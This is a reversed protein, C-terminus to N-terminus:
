NFKNLVSGDSLHEPYTYSGDDPYSLIWRGEFGSLRISTDNYEIEAGADMIHSKHIKGSDAYILGDATTKCYLDISGLTVTNGNITYTGKGVLIDGLYEFHLYVYNSDFHIYEGSTYGGDYYFYQEGGEDGIIVVDSTKTAETQKPKEYGIRFGEFIPSFCATLKNNNKYPDPYRYADSRAIWHEEFDIITITNNTYKLKTGASLIHYSRFNDNIGLTSPIEGSIAKYTDMPGLTIINDSVTYKARAFEISDATSVDIYVYNSDIIICGHDFDTDSFYLEEGPKLNLTAASPTNQNISPQPNKQTNNGQNIIQNGGQNINNNQTIENNDYDYEINNNMEVSNGNQVKGPTNYNYGYSSKPRSGVVFCIIVVIMIVVLLSLVGIIIGHKATNNPKAPVSRLRTNVLNIEDITNTYDPQAPEPLKTGCVPCYVTEDATTKGCATCIRM